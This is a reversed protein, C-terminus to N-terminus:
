SVVSLPAKDLSKEREFYHRTCNSGTDRIVTVLRWGKRAMDNLMTDVHISACMGEHRIVTYEYQM